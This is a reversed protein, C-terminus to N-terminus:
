GRRGATSARRRGILPRRRSVAQDRGLARSRGAVAARLRSRGPQARDGCRRAPDGARRRPARRGLPRGGAKACVLGRRRCLSHRARRRGAARALRAGQPLPSLHVVSGPRDRAGNPLPASVARRAKARAAALRAQRAPDGRGEFSRFRSALVPEHGAGRLAALFLQAMRRDGSPVPHDPPKLPAYFAIRM